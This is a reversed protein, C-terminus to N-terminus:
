QVLRATQVAMAFLTNLATTVSGDTAVTQMLYTGDTNQSACAQLQQQILPVNSAAFSNFTPHATYNITAPLYQTYLIAIRTGNAKIANCQTVNGATFQTIGDATSDTAGDTIIILVNQPSAKTGAGAKTPLTSQAATLMATYDTNKNSVTASALLPAQAGLDPFTLSQTTAVDTMTGFPSTTLAVPTGTNFTYFQMQYIPPVNAKNYQQEIGYAYQIVAAAADSEADTRLYIQDKGPNVTSYNQALWWTDPFNVSISVYNATKNAKGTPLYYIYNPNPSPNTVQNFSKTTNCYTPISKTSSNVLTANTTAIQTGDSKYLNGGCSVRYFPNTASDSGNNLYIAYKNSDAVYTGANWQHMNTAHCAFDCGDTQGYYYAEGAWFAGATLNTIGTSTTPLLMSPSTDLAIYFNMSPPQSASATASGGIALTPMKLIGAFSNASTATYTVTTTRLNALSGAANDVVTVVRKTVVLGSLGSVQQDFSNQGATIADATSYNLMTPDVTALAAADAAADLKTQLRQARSYDIGFGVAFTLLLIGFGTLLLINGGQDARLRRCLTILRTLLPRM